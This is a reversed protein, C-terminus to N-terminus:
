ACPHIYAGASLTAIQNELTARVQLGTKPPLEM